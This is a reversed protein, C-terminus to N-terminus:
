GLSMKGVLGSLFGSGSSDRIPQGQFGFRPGVGEGPFQGSNDGESASTRALVLGMDWNLLLVSCVLLSFSAWFLQIQIGVKVGLWRAWSSSPLLPWDFGTLWGVEAGPQPM